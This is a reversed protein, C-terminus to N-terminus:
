EYTKNISEWHATTAHADLFQILFFFFLGLSIRINPNVSLTYFFLWLTFFINSKALWKPKIFLVQLM